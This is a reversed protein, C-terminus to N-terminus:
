EAALGYGTAPLGAIGPLATLSGDANIRFASIDHSGSNLNYLYAGNASVGMDLPGGGTIGTRGDANLATLSGDRGIAFGSISGSAANTTYAYKGNGTVLVWCPAQQSTSVSGSALILGGNAGVHYSSLAGPAAESVIIDGRPTFAFGYPVGGNSPFTTPNSPTGDRGLTYTDILNTAKETVVLVRGNPSFAVEAAGAGAGSLPRTSHALPTLKGAAGLKFGSINGAGGANLVYVLSGSVAVSVPMSGGSREVDVLLLGTPRVLFVSVSSSGANVVFLLRGDASLTVSGQSALSAGTGNGGTSYRGVESLSGDPARRLMIAQNGGAANSATFVAGGTDRGQAAAGAVATFLVGLALLLAPLVRLPRPLGRRIQTNM